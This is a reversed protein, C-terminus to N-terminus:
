SVIHPGSHWLTDIVPRSCSFHDACWESSDGQKQFYDEAGLHVGGQKLVVNIVFAAGGLFPLSETFSVASLVAIGSVGLVSSPAWSRAAGGICSIWCFFSKLVIQLVRISCSVFSFIFSVSCGSPHLLFLVCFNLLGNLIWLLVNYKANHVNYEYKM